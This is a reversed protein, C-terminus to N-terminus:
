TTSTAPACKGLAAFLDNTLSEDADLGADGKTASTVFLRRLLDDDIADSICDEDVETSASISRAFEARIDVDCEGYADYMKNGESETLGLAALQENDTDARVQDPTVGKEKLRDVGIVDLWKPAVCKAQEETMQLSDSGGQTFQAEIAALYEEETAGSADGGGASSGGTTTASAGATTTAADGGKDDDDGCAAASLTLLGVAATALAVRIKM